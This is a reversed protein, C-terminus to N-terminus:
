IRARLRSEIPQLISSFRHQVWILSTICSVLTRSSGSSKGSTAASTNSSESVSLRATPYAHRAFLTNPALNLVLKKCGAGSPAAGTWSGFGAPEEAEPFFVFRKQFLLLIPFSQELMIVVLTVGVVLGDQQVRELSKLIALIASVAQGDTLHEAVYSFPLNM